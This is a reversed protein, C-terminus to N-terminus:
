ERRWEMPCTLQLVTVVGGLQVEGLLEARRRGGGGMGRDRGRQTPGGKMDRRLYKVGGCRGIMGDAWEEDKGVGWRGRGMGWSVIMIVRLWKRYMNM